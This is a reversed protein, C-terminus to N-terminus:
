FLHGGWDYNIVGGRFCGGTMGLLGKRLVPGEGIMVLSGEGLNAGGWDYGIDGGRFCGGEGAM